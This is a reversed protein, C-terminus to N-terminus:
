APRSHQKLAKKTLIRQGVAGYTSALNPAPATPPVKSLLLLRGVPKAKCNGWRAGKGQLLM